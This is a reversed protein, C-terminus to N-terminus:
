RVEQVAVGGMGKLCLDGENVRIVRESLVIIPALIVHQLKSSELIFYWLTDTM